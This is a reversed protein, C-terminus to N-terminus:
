KYINVLRNHCGITPYHTKNRRVCKHLLIFCRAARLEFPLEFNVYYRSSMVKQRSNPPFTRRQKGLIPLTSFCRRNKKFFHKVNCELPTYYLWVPVDSVTLSRLHAVPFGNHFAPIRRRRSSLGSALWSSAFVLAEENKKDFLASGPRFIIVCPAM